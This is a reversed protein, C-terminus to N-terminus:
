QDYVFQTKVEQLFEEYSMGQVFEQAKIMGDLIDNIYDLVARKM